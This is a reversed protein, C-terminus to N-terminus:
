RQSQAVEEPLLCWKLHCAPLGGASATVPQRKGPQAWSGDRRRGRRQCRSGGPAGVDATPFWGWGTPVPVLGGWIGPSGYPPRGEWCGILTATSSVPALGAAPPLQGLWHSTAYDVPSRRPRPHCNPGPPALAPAVAAAATHTIPAPSFVLTLHHLFRAEPPRSFWCATLLWCQRCM